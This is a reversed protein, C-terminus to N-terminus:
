LVKIMEFQRGSLPINKAELFATLATCRIDTNILKFRGHPNLQRVEQLLLSAIGKRRHAKHVALQAIDGSDPEITCYGLLNVGDFVGVTEFHDAARELSEFHNQWSPSFDWFDTLAEPDTIRFSEIMWGSPVEHPGGKMQEKDSIFYNFERTVEFGSKRYVAVAPANNQLVELVYQQIGVQKLFPISHEFIRAALGQGRYDKLTGTGTDYATSLGNYMGTGNLTFAVIKGDEFAAFSLGPSFGRRTLMSKFQLADWQTEYDAFAANFAAYITEFPTDALSRIEM